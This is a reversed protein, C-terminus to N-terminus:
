GVGPLRHEVDRGRQQGARRWAPAPVQFHQEPVGSIATCPQSMAWAHPSFLGIGSASAALKSAM